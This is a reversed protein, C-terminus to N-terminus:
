RFAVPIKCTIKCASSMCIQGRSAHLFAQKQLFFYMCIAPLFVLIAPLFVRWDCAFISGIGWLIVQLQLCDATVGRTFEGAFQLYTLKCGAPSTVQLMRAKNLAIAHIRRSISAVYFCTCNGTKVPLSCTVCTFQTHPRKVRSSCMFYGANEPLKAIALEVTYTKSAGESTLSVEKTFIVLPKSSSLVHSDWLIRLFWGSIYHAPANVPEMLM